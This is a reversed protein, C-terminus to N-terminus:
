SVLHNIYLFRNMYIAILSLMRFMWNDFHCCKNTVTLSFVVRVTTAKIVPNFTDTYNLGPVQTYGKPVLRAKLREISGDPLYKTRFVWKSGVIITNALRPVLIWARNTQLAQVEEDM